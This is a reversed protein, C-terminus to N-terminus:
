VKMRHDETPMVSIHRNAARMTRRDGFGDTRCRCRCDDVCAYHLHRLARLEEGAEGLLKEADIATVQMQDDVFRMQERWLPADVIRARTGHQVGGIVQDAKPATYTKADDHDALPRCLQVLVAQGLDFRQDGHAEDRRLVPSGDLVPDGLARIRVGALLDDCRQRRQRGAIRPHPCGADVHKCATMKRQRRCEVGAFRGRMLLRKVLDVQALDDFFKAGDFLFGLVVIRLQQFFLDGVKM